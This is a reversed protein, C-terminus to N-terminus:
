RGTAKMLGPAPPTEVRGELAALIEAALRTTRELNTAGSGQSAGLRVVVLGSSPVVLLTQGFNGNGFFSDAPAGWQRRRKAGESAGRNTWFGAGYGQVAAPTPRSSWEVWGEPLLRRGDVVGDGAYLLGLRAWDRASAHMFAAGQPNGAADFAIGATRMGLPGFLERGAFDAVAQPDGITARLIGSLIAYNADSYAFEASAPDFRASAAVAATDPALFLMQSAPDFGTNADGFPHGSVHRLLADVTVSARPDDSGQWAAVPAPAGVDIMGQRTLVAFLANVVSKGLSWGLIPTEPGYGAAYREALIRGGAVVVVAKVGQRPGDAPEAFARDLAEEIRADSAAVPGEPAALPDDAFLEWATLPAIDGKEILTCGRGDRYVARASNTGLLTVRIEGNARDAETRMAGAVLKLGPAPRVEDAFLKEVDQGSVYAGTCLMQAAMSTAVRPAKWASCGALFPAALAAGVVLWGRRKPRTQQDQAEDM